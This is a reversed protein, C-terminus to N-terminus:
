ADDRALNLVKGTAAPAATTERPVLTPRLVTNVADTRGGVRELLLRGAAVGMDLGSQDVTTMSIPALSSTFINDFGAVSLEDPVRIGAGWLATLVGFAAVDCGAFVATPRDPRSLILKGAEEGGEQSWQSQVIDIGDGLGHRIMADVYGRVRVEEPLRADNKGDTTHNVYAIRRHGLGVLHDVVLGAGTFDDAAVSDLDPSSGHRGLVVMPVNKAVTELEEDTGLPSILIIGDMGRDVLDEVMRDQADKGSGAPAALLRYKQRECERRIGEVLLSSFENHLDAVVVAVTHTRGRMGRASALPRYGLSKMSAQVKAKMEPSVGYADRLVKSAAATSVGAHRAVDVITPRKDASGKSM